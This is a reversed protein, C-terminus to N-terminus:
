RPGTAHGRRKRAPEALAGGHEQGPGRQRGDARQAAAAQTLEQDIEPAAIEALLEGKKVSAASTKPGDCSMATAAPMCADGRQCGAAHGAADSPFGDSDAKPTTTTVYQEAHLETARELARAHFGRLVLVGIAGALLLVGIVTAAYKARKM